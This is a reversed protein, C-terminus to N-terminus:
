ISLKVKNKNFKILLNDCSKSEGDFEIINNQSLIEIEDVKVIDIFNLKNLKMGLIWYIIFRFLKLRSINKFYILEMKNDNYEANYDLIFNGGFKKINCLFFQRTKIIRNNIKFKFLPLKFKVFEKLLSIVYASKGIIKKLRLNVNNVAISDYGGSLFLLFLKDNFYWTDLDIFNQKIIIDAAKFIDNEPINFEKALVNATGSPIIGLNINKLEASQIIENITGDGGVAVFVDYKNINNVCFETASDPATTLYIDANYDSETEFYQKLQNLKQKGIFSGSNPNSILVINKM